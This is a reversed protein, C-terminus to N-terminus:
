CRQLPENDYESTHLPKVPQMSSRIVDLITQDAPLWPVSDIDDKTLWRAAEAEKLVLDGSVVEGSATQCVGSPIRGLLNVGPAEPMQRCLDEFQEFSVQCNSGKWMKEALVQLAPFSRVHVDQESIGNGCKDNWVAFM